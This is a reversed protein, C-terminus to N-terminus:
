TNKLKKVKEKTIKPKAGYDAEFNATVKKIKSKPLNLLNKLDKPLDGKEVAYVPIGKAASFALAIALGVRIGTFSGEGVVVYIKEIKDLKTKSGKLFQELFNLVKETKLNIKYKKQITKEGAAFVAFNVDHFETTDLLLNM